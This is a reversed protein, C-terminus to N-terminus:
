RSKVVLRVKESKQNTLPNTAVAELVVQADKSKILTQNEFALVVRWNGKEDATSTAEGLKQQVSTLPVAVSLMATV